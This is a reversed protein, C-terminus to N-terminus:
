SEARSIACMARAILPVKERPINGDNDTFDKLWEFWDAPSREAPHRFWEQVADMGGDGEPDDIAPFGGVGIQKGMDNAERIMHNTM